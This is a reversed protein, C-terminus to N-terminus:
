ALLELFRARTFCGRAKLDSCTLKAPTRLYKTSTIYSVMAGVRIGFDAAQLKRICSKSTVGIKHSILTAGCFFKSDRTELVAM